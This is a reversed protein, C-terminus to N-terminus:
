EPKYKNILDELTGSQTDIVNDVIHGIQSVLEEFSADYVNSFKEGDLSVVFMINALLEAKNTPLNLPQFALTGQEDIIPPNYVISTGNLMRILTDEITKIHGYVTKIVSLSVKNNNTRLVGQVDAVSKGTAYYDAVEIANASPLLGTFTEQKKLHDKHM